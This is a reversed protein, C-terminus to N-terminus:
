LSRAEAAPETRELLPSLWPVKGKRTRMQEALDSLKTQELTRWLLMEIHDIAEHIPCDPGPECGRRDSACRLIPQQGEIATIVQRLNIQDPPLALAFGGKAGRYSAVLGAKVLQQFVKALYTESVGQARAVETVLTVKGKPQLALYILSHIAYETSLSLHM